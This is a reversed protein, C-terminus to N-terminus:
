GEVVIAEKKKGSFDALADAVEPIYKEFLSV